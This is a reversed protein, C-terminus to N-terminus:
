RSATDGFVREGLTEIDPPQSLPARGDKGTFINMISQVRSSISTFSKQNAESEAQELTKPALLLAWLAIIVLATALVLVSLKKGGGEKATSTRKQASDM